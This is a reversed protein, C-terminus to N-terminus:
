PTAASEFHALAPYKRRRGPDRDLDLDQDAQEKEALAEVASIRALEATYGADTGSIRQV